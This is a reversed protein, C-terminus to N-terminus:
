EVQLGSKASHALYFCVFALTLAVTEGRILEGKWVGGHELALQALPEVAAEAAEEAGEQRQAKKLAAFGDEDYLRVGYAGKPLDEHTGSFSIQYGAGSKAASKVASRAQGEASALVAYLNPKAAGENKCTVDFSVIFVTETATAAESSTYSTHTVVPSLCPEALCCSLWAALALALLSCRRSISMAKKLKRCESQDELRSPFSFLILIIEFKTTKSLIFLKCGPFARTFSSPMEIVLDSHVVHNRFIIRLIM